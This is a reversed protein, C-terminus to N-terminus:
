LCIAGKSLIEFLDVNKRIEDLACAVNVESIHGAFDIYFLYEGLEKKSPRSNIHSMNLEYKSLINLVQNLAGSKNETSFIISVKNRYSMEPSGKSILIFRTKNNIDESIEKEIIPVKYLEACYESGIAAKTLDDSNLSKIALSTSLVPKLEVDKNLNECIYKRCQALAQPHSTVIKIQSKQGYSILSHKIDLNAEAFIRYGQRALILLDDQTENVGGEISNEIPVVAGTNFDNICLLTEMIAFLSNKKIYECDSSVYKAFKEKALESYSGSPGLYLLKQIM